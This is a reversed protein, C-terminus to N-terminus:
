PNRWYIHGFGCPVASKTRNVSSIGLPFSWKKPLSPQCHKLLKKQWVRIHSQCKSIHLIYLLKAKFLSYFFSLLMKRTFHFWNKWIIYQFSYNSKLDTRNEFGQKLIRFYNTGHYGFILKWHEKYSNQSRVM